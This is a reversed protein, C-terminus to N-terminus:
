EESKGSGKKGAAQELNELRALVKRMQGEINIMSESLEQFERFLKLLIVSLPLVIFILHFWYGPLCPGCSPEKVIDGGMCGIFIVPLLAMVLVCCKKM